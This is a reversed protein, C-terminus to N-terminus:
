IDALISIAWLDSLFILCSIVIEQNEKFGPTISIFDGKSTVLYRLLFMSNYTKSKSPVKSMM